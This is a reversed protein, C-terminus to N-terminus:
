SCAAILGEKYHNKFSETIVIDPWFTLLCLSTCYFYLILVSLSYIPSPMLQAYKCVHHTLWTSQCSLVGASNIVRLARDQWNCRWLEKTHLSSVPASVNWGHGVATQCDLVQITILYRTTFDQIVFDPWVHLLCADNRVAAGIQIRAVSTHAHKEESVPVCLPRDCKWLGWGSPNDTLTM